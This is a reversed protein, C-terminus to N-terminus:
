ECIIKYNKDVQDDNDLNKYKIAGGALIPVTCENSDICMKSIDVDKLTEDVQVTKTTNGEKVEKDYVYSVTVAKKSINVSTIRGNSKRVDGHEDKIFVHVPIIPKLKSDGKIPINNKLVKDRDAILGSIKKQHKNFIDILTNYNAVVMGGSSKTTNLTGLFGNIEENYKRSAEKIVEQMVAILKKTEPCGILIKCKKSGSQYNTQFYNNEDLNITMTSVPTLKYNIEQAHSFLSSM